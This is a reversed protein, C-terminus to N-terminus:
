AMEAPDLEDEEDDDVVDDTLIREKPEVTAIM